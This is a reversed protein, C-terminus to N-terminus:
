AKGSQVTQQQRQSNLRDSLFINKQGEISGTNLASVQQFFLQMAPTQRPDNLYEFTKALMGQNYIYSIYDPIPNWTDTTATFTLASNQITVAVQYVADPAPVLRYTILNSGNDLQGSIKTPQNVRTEIVLNQEIELQNSENGNATNSIVASEIYGFNATTVPYDSQGIVTSFSFGARNWNYSFPPSLIFQRVWDANSLAPDNTSLVLPAYRVFASALTISRQVPITSPM